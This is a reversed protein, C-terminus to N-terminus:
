LRGQAGRWIGRPWVIVKAILFIMLPLHDGQGGNSYLIPDIAEEVKLIVILFVALFRMIYKIEECFVRYEGM